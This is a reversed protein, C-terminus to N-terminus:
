SSGAFVNSWRWHMHVCERCGPPKPVPPTVSAHNTQHFNDWRGTQGNTIANDGAEFLLPNESDLYALFFPFAPNCPVPVFGGPIGNCDQSAISSNGITMASASTPADVSFHLRQATNIHTLTETADGPIFQYSVLPSFKACSLSESPECGQAPISFPYDQTIFVCANQNATSVNDVEYTAKIEPSTNGSPSAQFDVLRSNCLGSSGNPKLICRQDPSSSTNPFNSTKLNFYPLNMKAAMYRTGLSVDTLELGHKDSVNYSM